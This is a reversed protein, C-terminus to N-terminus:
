IRFSKAKRLQREVEKKKIRERQDYLRRGKVLALEVKARGRENFYLSLAILTYGKQNIKGVLKNIERKHLLLKRARRPEVNAYSGKDYPSIYLDNLYVEGNNVRAFSDKLDVKNLRLSKVETGKLEIGAELKELIDYKVTARKNSAIVKNKM